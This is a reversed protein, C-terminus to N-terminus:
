SVNGRSFCAKLTNENNNVCINKTLLLSMPSASLDFAGKIPFVVVEYGLAKAACILEPEPMGQEVPVGVVSEYGLPPLEKGLELIVREAGLLQGTCRLQLVKKHM